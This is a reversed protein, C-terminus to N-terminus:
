NESKAIETLGALLVTELYATSMHCVKQKRKIGSKKKTTEARLMNVAIHRMMAIMEAADKNYIPCQDENMSADLVWHLSNEIGWHSRVASAFRAETLKASSIYYRYEVSPKDTKKGWRYGMVVGISKIGQWQSYPELEPDVPLTYCLRAEDRGHSQNIDIKEKKVPASVLESLANKVAKYLGEQNGKVALLYDGQNELISKAIEKQCGMADISILCGKVDLLKILKPITTIENSKDDTKLQGLVTGNLTAFASVMHITSRRDERHYSRRLTKGDIAILEGSSRASISQAWRIFCRRFEDPNIRSIVRAITDDTPAGNLFLGKQQLWDLNIEAFDEIDEWGSAGCLVGCVSLFLLDFLPYDVKSLQRPDQIANFHKSFASIIM